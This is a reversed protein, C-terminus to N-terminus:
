TEGKLGEARGMKKRKELLVDVFAELRTVVGVHSTHEDLSCELVPIGSDKSIKKLIPRISIEPMCGSPCVHIVGDFGEKACRVTYAVSELAHGGVRNKLYPWAEKKLARHSYKRCLGIHFIKDLEEGLLFFNRVEVGMSGLTEAMNHNLFDDRLVSAEGVLAIRLPKRGEHIAIEKFRGIVIKKLALIEPLTGAARLDELCENMVRTTDGACRELARTRWSLREILDISKIRPPSRVCSKLFPIVGPDFHKILPPKIGDYGLGFIFLDFGREKLINQQLERYYRLRCTGASNVMVGYKVGEMAAKIFHGTHAKFPLCSSEPSAEVGLALMEPTTCTSTWPTVRLCEVSGALAIAYNGWPPIALSDM